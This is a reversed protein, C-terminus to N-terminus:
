RQEGRSRASRIMVSVVKVRFSSDHNSVIERRIDLEAEIASYPCQKDHTTRQCGKKASSIPNTVLGEQRPTVLRSNTKPGDGLEVTGSITM